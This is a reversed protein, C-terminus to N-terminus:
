CFLFHGNVQSSGELDGRRLTETKRPATSQARIELAVNDEGKESSNKPHTCKHFTHVKSWPM